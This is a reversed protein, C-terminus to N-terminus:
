KDHVAVDPIIKVGRTQAELAEVRKKEQELLAQLRENAHEADVKSAEAAAAAERARVSSVRERRKSREAKKRAEEAVQQAQEAREKATQADSVAHVLEDNKSALDKSGEEVKKREENATAEAKKAAAEAVKTLSLQETVRRAQETAEKQAANITYLAVGGAVVLLSLFAMAAIIAFRRRRTARASLAFVADLYAAQLEPLEGRYRSRWLKAEQM